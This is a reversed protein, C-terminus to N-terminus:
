GAEVLQQEWLKRDLEAFAARATDAARLAQALAEGVSAQRAAAAAGLERARRLATLSAEVEGQSTEELQRELRTAAEEYLATIQGEIERRLEPFAQRLRAQFSLAQKREQDREEFRLLLEAALKVSRSQISQSLLQFTELRSWPSDGFTFGAATRAVGEQLALPTLAAQVDGVVANRAGLSIAALAPRHAELCRELALCLVDVLFFGFHRKLDETSFRNIGAITEAELRDLFAGMWRRAEAALARVEAGAEAKREGIRRSLEAHGQEGRAVARRLDEAEAALGEKVLRIKAEFGDLMRRARGITRDLQITDRSALVTQDLHGRFAAFARSLSPAREPRPRALSQQRCLEDWASLPYVSASPMLRAIKATLFRILSDADGEGGVKDLMNIAFIVKPFDHPLVSMRLFARESESLPSLASVVFIVADARFLYEQVKQDFRWLIDGTGPTDVLCLHQLWPIPLRVELHSVPRPLKALLPALRASALDEPCLRVRAGDELCADAAAEPGYRIENITLTEPAVDTTLVATGLLANLLTSKGRKFDGAVVIRLESDLRERIAEAQRESQELIEDGLVEGVGRRRIATAFGSLIGFLERRQAAPDYRVVWRGGAATM